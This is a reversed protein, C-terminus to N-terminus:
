KKEPISHYIQNLALIAYASVLEPQAELWRSNPNTWSGDERQLQLLRTALQKRWNIETGDKLKLTQVNAVTLAKAMTHYYYYLGQKGLGPNEELTYNDAIWKKVAVIRPDDADINAHILSLLGAYSMSGYGRLTERGKADKTTGAKSNGPFYVFSGDNGAEALPNTSQLNQCASIFKAAAEWDLDTKAANDGDKAFLDATRIAHFALHSNSMDSHPYSGGYGVGGNMIPTKGDPGAKWDTQLNILFNRANLIIPKHEPQGSAAFAMISLSTNYNALGKGYIGGDKHVKTELYTYGKKIYEPTDGKERNPDGMTAYIALASFAPLTEDYWHGEPKQVSKLYKNGRSIALKLENRISLLDANPLKADQTTASTTTAAKEVPKCSALPIVLASCLTIPLIAKKM